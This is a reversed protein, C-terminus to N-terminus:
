RRSCTRVRAPRSDVGLPRDQVALRDLRSLPTARAAEIPGLLHVPALAMQENICEAQDELGNDVRRVQMVAVTALEHQTGEAAFKRPQPM